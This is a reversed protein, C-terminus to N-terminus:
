CKKMADQQNSNTKGFGLTWSLTPIQSENAEQVSNM